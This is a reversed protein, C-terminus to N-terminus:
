LPIIGNIRKCSKASPNTIINGSKTNAKKYTTYEKKKSIKTCTM